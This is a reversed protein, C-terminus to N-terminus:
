IFFYEFLFRISREGISESAITLARTRWREKSLPVEIEIRQKKAFNLM